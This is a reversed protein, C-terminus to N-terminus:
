EQPASHDVFVDLTPYRLGNAKIDNGLMFVKRLKFICDNMKFMIWLCIKLGLHMFSDFGSSWLLDM